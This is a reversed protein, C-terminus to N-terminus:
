LLDDVVRCTSQALEACRYLLHARKALLPSFEPCAPLLSLARGWLKLGKAQRIMLAEGSLYLVDAALARAAQPTSSPEPCRGAFLDQIQRVRPLVESLYHSALLPSLLPFQVKTALTRIQRENFRTWTQWTQRSLRDGVVFYPAQPSYTLVAREDKAFEHFLYGLLAGAGEAGPLVASPAQEEAPPCALQLATFSQFGVNMVTEWDPEMETEPPGDALLNLSRCWFKGAQRLALTESDRGESIQQLRHFGGLYLQFALEFTGRETAADSWGSRAWGPNAYRKLHSNQVPLRLSHTRIAREDDETMWGVEGLPVWPRPVRALWRRLRAIQRLAETEGESQAVFILDFDSLGPTFADRAGSGRLYLRAPEFKNALLYAAQEVSHWYWRRAMRGLGPFTGLSIARDRAWPSLWPEDFHM